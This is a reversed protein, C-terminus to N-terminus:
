KTLMVRKREGNSLSAKYTIMGGSEIYTNVMWTISCALYYEGPPLNNFEFNGGADATERRQYKGLRNDVNALSKNSEMLSVIEKTYLNAPMLIVTNGAGLKVDGGNTKLFAQGYIRGTGEKNYASFISENYTTQIIPPNPLCGSILFVLVFITYKAM